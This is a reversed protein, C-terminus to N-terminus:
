SCERATAEKHSVIDYVLGSGGSQRRIGIYTGFVAAAHLERMGPRCLLGELSAAHASAVVPVGCNAAAIVPGAEEAGIEDCVILQANMTRAAIEIGVGKPYGSLVSLCLREGFCGDDLERRTDVLAVRLMHKEGAFRAALARLLTTKGQGPPAYILAGRPFCASVEDEIEGGVERLPRPFRICLTDVARVGLLRGNEELIAQGCVGVRIGNKLAIYGELLTERHAYISGECLRMLLAEMEEASLMADVRRNEGGVTVSCCRGAHLHLEDWRGTVRSLPPVLHPPLWTRLVEPMGGDSSPHIQERKVTQRM